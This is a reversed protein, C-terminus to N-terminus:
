EEEGEAAGAGAGSEPEGAKATAEAKMASACIDMFLGTAASAVRGLELMIDAGAAAKESTAGGEMAFADLLEAASEAEEKVQACLFASWVPRFPVGKCADSTSAFKRAMGYWKGAGDVARQMAGGIEPGVDSTDINIMKMWDEQRQTSRLGVDKCAQVIEESGCFPCPKLKVDSM